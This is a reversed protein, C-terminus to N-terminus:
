CNPWLRIPAQGAGQEITVPWSAPAGQEIGQDSPQGRAIQEADRSTSAPAASCRQCPAALRAGSPSRRHGPYVPLIALAGQRSAFPRGGALDPGLIFLFPSLFPPFSSVPLCLSLTFFSLAQLGPGARLLLVGACLGTNQALM